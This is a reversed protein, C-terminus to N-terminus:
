EHYARRKECIRDMRVSTSAFQEGLPMEGIGDSPLAAPSDFSKKGSVFPFLVMKHSTVATLIDKIETIGDFPEDLIKKFVPQFLVFFQLHSISNIWFLTDTVPVIQDFKGVGGALIEANQGYADIINEMLFKRSYHPTFQHDDECIIIVDDGNGAATGVIEKISFFLNYAALPHRGTGVVTVDFENRGSFEAEIHRLRDDSGPQHIVYTPIVVNEYADPESDSVPRELEKYIGAIHRLSQACEVSNRFLGDVHGAVNNGKTADSYGFEVQTSIFPHIFFKNDTMEAIKFDPVNTAGLDAELIAKFFKRYIVTFQLGSFKDVWFTNESIQLAGSFWSVGGLLIDADKKKAQAICTFLLSPSYDPTFRHDDECLIIFEYEKENINEIIKCITNWLGMAGREHEEAEVITVAFEQRGLFEKRTHEKRDTRSKLNVVYVPLPHRINM